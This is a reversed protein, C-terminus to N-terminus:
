RVGFMPVSTLPTWSLFRDEAAFVLEGAVYCLALYDREPVLVEGVQRDCLSQRKAPIETAVM